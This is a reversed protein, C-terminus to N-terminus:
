PHLKQQPISIRVEGISEFKSRNLRGYPRCELAVNEPLALRCPGTSGPDCTSTQQKDLALAANSNDSSRIRVRVACQEREVPRPKTPLNEQGLHEQRSDSRPNSLFISSLFIFVGSMSPQPTGNPELFCPSLHRLSCRHCGPTPPGGLAWVPKTSM